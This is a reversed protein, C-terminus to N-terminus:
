NDYYDKQKELISFPIEIELDRNQNLYDILKQLQQVSDRAFGLASNCGHCIWGRFKGNSHDHDFCIRGGGGCIECIEPKPRGARQEKTGGTWNHHKPGKPTKNFKNGMMFQRIKEKREESLVVGKAYQNGKSALGIKKKTEESRPIGLKAKIMKERSEKSAKLGIHALRIKEKHEATKKIGKNSM